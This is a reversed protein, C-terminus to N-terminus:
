IELFFSGNKGERKKRTNRSQQVPTAWRCNEPEYNGAPDPFRDLTTGQPREGMDALFNPFKEWRECVTIGNGGYLNWNIDKPNTCRTRMSAWSRYTPSKRSGSGRHGHRQRPNPSRPAPACRHQRFKQQELNAANTTFKKGCTCQCLWLVLGPSCVGLPALATITGAQLGTYDRLNPHLTSKAM